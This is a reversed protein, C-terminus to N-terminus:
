FGFTQVTPPQTGDGPSVRGGFSRDGSALAIYLGDGEVIGQGTVTSQGPTCYGFEGTSPNVYGAGSDYVLLVYGDDDTQM